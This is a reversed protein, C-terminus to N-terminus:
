FGGLNTQHYRKSETKNRGGVGLGLEGRLERAKEYDGAKAAERSEQFISFNDENVVELVRGKGNMSDRWVEFGGEQIADFKESSCDQYNDYNDEWNNSLGGRDFSNSEQGLGKFDGAYASMGGGALLIGSLLFSSIIIKNKKEM